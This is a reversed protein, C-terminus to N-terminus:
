ASLISKGGGSHHPKSSAILGNHDSHTSNQNSLEHNLPNHAKIGSNSVVATKMEDFKKHPSHSSCVSQNFNELNGSNADLKAVWSDVSGANIAGLSGETFGTVFVNGANDVSLNTSYDLASTGFQKAWIQNGDTDYRAVFADYSGANTGGFNGDTYGTIFINNNSDIKMGGIFAADDGSTGFQKLFVQNGNADYKSLFLDSFGQLPGGLDGQTWGYSYVNGQTDTDVSWGFDFSTSGFQKIWAVEGNNQFKTIWTDYTGLNANPQALGGYTWGTTYISGSGDKSYAIGYAEDWIAPSDLPTAVKTFWEQNGNNDFKTVWFDDQADIVAVPRKDGTLTLGSVYLNGSEDLVLNTAANLSAEGFQKIWVQNGNSDYKAIVADSTTSQLPIALNGQTAGAIYFNGANDAVINQIQDGKSSGFQKIWQQTGNSDYKAVWNDYSGANTGQLTGSTFGGVYVDGLSDTAISTALDLGDTGIQKILPQVPGAPPTYGAYQFNASNLDLNSTAFVIGVLDGDFPNQNAQTKQFIATGLIPVSILQYDNATGHLQITDSQRNFDLIAAFDNYSDNAYFSRNWDGLVFRDNGGSPPNGGLTGLFSILVNIGVPDTKGYFVDINTATKIPSLSHDFGYFTDSGRRGFLVQTDSFGGFVLDSAPTLVTFLPDYQTNGLVAPPIGFTPDIAAPDVLTTSAYYRRVVSAIDSTITSAQTVDNSAMYRTITSAQTVDNSAMYRILTSAQTWDDSPIDSTVTSAEISDNSPIDSTFISTQMLNDLVTTDM